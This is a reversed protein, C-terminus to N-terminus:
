SNLAKLSDKVLSAEDDEGNSLLGRIEERVVWDVVTKELETLECPDAYKQWDFYTFSDLEVRQLEFELRLSSCLLRAEEESVSSFEGGWAALVKRHFTTDPYFTHVQVDWGAKLRRTFGYGTHFKPVRVSAVHLLNNM